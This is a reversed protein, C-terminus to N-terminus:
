NAARMCSLKTRLPGTCHFSPSPVLWLVSIGRVEGDYSNRSVIQIFGVVVLFLEGGAVSPTANFYLKDPVYSASKTDELWPPM